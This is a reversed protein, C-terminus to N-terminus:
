KFLWPQPDDRWLFWFKKNSGLQETREPSDSPLHLVEYQATM